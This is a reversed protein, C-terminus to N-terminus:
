PTRGLKGLLAVFPSADAAVPAPAAFMGPREGGESFADVAAVVAPDPSYPLEAGTALDWGHVLSESLSINAIVWGPTPGTPFPHEAALVGPEHLAARCRQAAARYAAAPDAGLYDAELDGPRQGSVTRTFYDLSAVLHNAVERVTWEPCPSPASWRTAPVAALVAGTDRHCRALLDLDIDKPHTM